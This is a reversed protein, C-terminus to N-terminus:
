FTANLIIVGLIITYAKPIRNAMKIDAISKATQTQM